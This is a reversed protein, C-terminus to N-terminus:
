SWLPEDGSAHPVGVLAPAVWRNWCQAADAEQGDWEGISDITATYTDM